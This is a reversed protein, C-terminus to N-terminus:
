ANADTAADKAHLPVVNSEADSVPKPLALITAKTGDWIIQHGEPNRGSLELLSRLVGRAENSRSDLLRAAQEAARKAKDVEHQAMEIRVCAANIIAQEKDTLEIM